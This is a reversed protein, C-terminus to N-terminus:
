NFTSPNSPGPKRSGSPASASSSSSSSSASAPQVTPKKTSATQALSQKINPDLQKWERQLGELKVSTRNGYEKAKEIEGTQEKASVFKILGAFVQASQQDTMQPFAFRMTNADNYTPTFDPPLYSLVEQFNDAPSADPNTKPVTLVFAYLEKFVYVSYKPM